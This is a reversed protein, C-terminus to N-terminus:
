NLNLCQNFLPGALFHWKPRFAYVCALRFLSCLEYFELNKRHNRSQHSNFKQRLIQKAKRLTNGFEPHQYSRLELHALLNGPDLAPDALCSLDWDIIYLYKGNKLVQKDHLDRHAPVLTQSRVSKSLKVIRSYAERAVTKLSPLFLCLDKHWDKIVELEDSVAHENELAVPRSQLWALFGPLQRVSALFQSANRIRHLSRGPIHEFFIANLEPSYYILRPTKIGQGSRFVQSENLSLLREYLDWILAPTSVKAQMKIKKSEKKARDYVELEYCLSCRKELRYSQIQVACSKVQYNKNQAPFIVEAFYRKMYAPSSCQALHPLKQDSPFVPVVLDLDPLYFTELGMRKLQQLNRKGQGNFHLQGYLIVQGSPFSRRAKIGLHYKIWVQKPKPFVQEVTCSTISSGKGWFDPLYDQFVEIMKQQDLAEALSRFRPNIIL